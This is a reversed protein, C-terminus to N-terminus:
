NIEDLPNTNEDFLDKTMEDKPKAKPNKLRFEKIFALRNGNWLYDPNIFYKGVTESEAIFNHQLLEKMGRYFTTESLPEIDTNVDSFSLHIFDKSQNEQIEDYLVSFVKAGSSTLNTFAKVGNKFLKVFQTKDVEIIEHFGAPALVEGTEESVIMLKDGAKNSIRKTGVKTNVVANSIFPNTKYRIGRRSKRVATGPATGPQEPNSKNQETM